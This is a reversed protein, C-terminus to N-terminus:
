GPTQQRLDTLIALLAAILANIWQRVQDTYEDVGEGSTPPPPFANGDGPDTGNVPEIAVVTASWPCFRGVNEVWYAVDEDVMSATGDCVEITIDALETDVMHWDHPANVGGDGYALAGNPIGAYGDGALAAEVAAIDAPLELVARFTSGDASKFTVIVPQPVNGDDTQAASLPSASTTLVALLLAVLFLATNTTRRM